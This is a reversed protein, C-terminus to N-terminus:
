FELFVISIFNQGFLASGYLLRLRVALTECFPSLYKQKLRNVQCLKRPFVALLSGALLYCTERPIPSLNLRWSPLFGVCFVRTNLSHLLWPEFNVCAFECFALPKEFNHTQFIDELLSKRTLMERIFTFTRPSNQPLFESMM